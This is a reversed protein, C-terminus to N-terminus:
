HQRLRQRGQLHQHDVVAGGVIAGPPDLAHAIGTHAHHALGIGAHGRRAVAPDRQGAAVPNGKEVGVVGPMGLEQRCQGAGVGGAGLGVHQAGPQMLQFFGRATGEFRPRHRFTKTFGFQDVVQAQAPHFVRGSHLLLTAMRM